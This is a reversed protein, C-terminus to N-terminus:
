HLINSLLRLSKSWFLYSVLNSSLQQLTLQSSWFKSFFVPETSRAMFWIPFLTWHISFCTQLAPAIIVKCCFSLQHLLPNLCHSGLLTTSIATTALRLKFVHVIFMHNQSLPFSVTQHMFYNSSFHQQFILSNHKLKITPSQHFDTWSLFKFDESLVRTMHFSVSSVVQWTTALTEWSLSNFVQMLGYLLLALVLTSDPLSPSSDIRSFWVQEPLDMNTLTPDGFCVQFLNKTM